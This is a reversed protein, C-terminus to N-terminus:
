QVATRKQRRTETRAAHYKEICQRCQRARGDPRMYVNEGILAHGHKCHTRQRAPGRRLNEVPTVLELHAPNVCLTNRCLHDIQMGAPIPASTLSFLLRHVYFRKRKGHSTRSTAAYGGANAHGIWLWCGSNPEPLVLRWIGADVREDGFQVARGKM